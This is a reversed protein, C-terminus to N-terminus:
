ATSQREPSKQHTLTKQRYASVLFYGDPAFGLEKVATSIALKDEYHEYIEHIPTGTKQIFRPHFGEFRLNPVSHDNCSLNFSAVHDVM